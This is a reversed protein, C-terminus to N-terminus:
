VPGTWASISSGGAADGEAGMHRRPGSVKASSPCDPATLSATLMEGERKPAGARAGAQVEADVCNGEGCDDDDGEPEPEPDPEPDVVMCPVAVWVWEHDTEGCYFGAGNQAGDHGCVATPNDHIRIARDSSVGQSTADITYFSWSGDHQEGLYDCSGVNTQAFVPSATLVLISALFCAPTRM